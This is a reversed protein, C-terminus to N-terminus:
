PVTITRCAFLVNAGPGRNIAFTCLQHRGRTLPVSTAFGHLAGYGPFAAAIDPRNGSAVVVRNFRGDVYLHVDISDAVDPDLAWGAIDAAGARAQVRDLVAQPQNSVAVLRCGLLV